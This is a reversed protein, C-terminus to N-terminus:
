ALEGMSRYPRWQALGQRWVLTEPGLTGTQRLAVMASRTVPGAAKGQDVWYWTLPEEVRHAEAPAYRVVPAAEAAVGAGIRRDQMCLSIIVGIWLTFLGIFFWGGASRGKAVAVCACIIGTVVNFGLYNLTFDPVDLDISCM